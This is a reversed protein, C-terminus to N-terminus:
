RASIFIIEILMPKLPGILINALLANILCMVSLTMIKLMMMSPTMVDSLLPTCTLHM